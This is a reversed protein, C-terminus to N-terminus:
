RRRGAVARRDSGGVRRGAARRAPVGDRVGARRRRPRRGAVARAGRRRRVALVADHVDRAAAELVPGRQDRPRPAAVERGWIIWAWPDYTPASVTLLSLAAVALCGLLLLTMGGPRRAAIVRGGATASAPRPPAPVAQASVAALAGRPDIGAGRAALDAHEGPTGWIALGRDLAALPVDCAEALERARRELLLKDGSVLVRKAAETTADEGVTLQLEGARLEYRGAAGLATLLDFRAARGFGPLPSGSSCARSAGSPRGRTRAASRPRSRAAREVWARYAGVTRAREGPLDPAEGAAWSPRADLIAAQLEPAQPGSLALLFALWTAEELDPEAAVEPYPGPPELRAAAAALAAALREADATARLGPVLANRYGDDAARALKRTVVGGSRPSSGRSRTTGGGSRTRAPRSPAKSKLEAQLERSCIPCNATLRNHRCFMPM